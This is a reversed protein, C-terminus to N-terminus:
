WRTTSSCCSASALPSKGKKPTLCTSGFHEQRHKIEFMDLGQQIDSDLLDLVEDDPLHHWHKGLLSNM